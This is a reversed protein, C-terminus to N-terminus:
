GVGLDFIAIRIVFGIRHPVLDDCAETQAESSLPQLTAARRGGVKVDNPEYTSSTSCPAPDPSTMEILFAAGFM